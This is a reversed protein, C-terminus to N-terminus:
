MRESTVFNQDLINKGLVINLLYKLDDNLIRHIYMYTYISISHGSNFYDFKSLTYLISLPKAM